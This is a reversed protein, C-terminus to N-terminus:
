EEIRWVGDAGKKPMPVDYKAILAVIFELSDMSWPRPNVQIETLLEQAFLLCRDPVSPLVPINVPATYANEIAIRTLNLDTDTM